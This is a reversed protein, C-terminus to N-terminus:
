EGGSVVHWRCRQVEIRHPHGVMDCLSNFTKRVAVGGAEEIHVSRQDVRRWADDTCPFQEGLGVSCNIDLVNKLTRATM